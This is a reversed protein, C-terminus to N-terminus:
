RTIPNSKEFVANMQFYFPPASQDQEGQCTITKTPRKLLDRWFLRENSWTYGFGQDPRVVLSHMFAAGIPAPRAEGPAIKEIKLLHGEEPSYVGIEVPIQTCNEVLLPSRFTIYKVNDTGLKIEVLLRHTVKDKKPSLSYLTEGERSVPIRDVSDFGSGELRMGVIGSAGEPALTERTTTPDEFRWGVEEGDSIKAASGDKGNDTQAWINMSFGTYNRIKFPADSGRPKSLVDEDTSLFQFSKSALAITASTISIDMFKRSFLDISLRGSTQERSMHFGMSWPEILPEWASKSFNYVNFYTDISTDASMAGSWDRVDVTFDKVSWDLIPLEHLDGILVVRIGGLKVNLEERKLITSGISKAPEPITAPPRSPQISKATKGAVTSARRRNGPTQSPKLLTGQAEQATTLASPDTKDNGIKASMESVKTLIQMVLLIDRLSLRLVLPEIDVQINTL